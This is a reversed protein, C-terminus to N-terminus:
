AGRIDRRQLVSAGAVVLSATVAALLLVGGATLGDTVPQEGLGWHWPSWARAWALPESLPLVFSMLYGAVLVAAAAGVAAGRRAGAAGLAFAVTGHFVALLASGATAALIRSPQVEELGFVSRTLVLVAAVIVTVIAVVATVGVWRSVLASRRGIPLSLLVELRGADEDGSTLASMGAIAMCSLLLPLFLAFVQGDLYGSPTTMNQAGFAELAAGMDEFSELADSGELTPWFAVNILGFGLIAFGWWFTSRRLTSMARVVVERNV